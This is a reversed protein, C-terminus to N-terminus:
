FFFILISISANQAKQMIIQLFTFHNSTQLPTPRFAILMHISCLKFSCNLPFRHLYIYIQFNAMVIHLKQWKFKELCYNM